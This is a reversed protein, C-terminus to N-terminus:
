YRQATGDWPKFRAAVEPATRFDPATRAIITGRDVWYGSAAVRQTVAAFRAVCTNILPETVATPAPLYVEARIRTVPRDVAGASSESGDRRTDPPDPADHYIVACLDGTETDAVVLGKSPSCEGIRCGQAVLFRRNGVLQLDHGSLGLVLVVSDRVTANRYLDDSGVTAPLFRDLAYTFVPARLLDFLSQGALARLDHFVPPKARVSATDAGASRPAATLALVAMATAILRHPKSLM